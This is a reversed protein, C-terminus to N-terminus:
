IKDRIANLAEAAQNRIEKVGNNIRTDSKHMFYNFLASIPIGVITFLILSDFKFILYLSSLGALAVYHTNWQNHFAGNNYYPFKKFLISFYLFTNMFPICCFLFMFIYLLYIKKTVSENRLHNLYLCDSKKSPIYAVPENDMFYIATNKGVPTQFDQNIFKIRMIEDTDDLTEFTINQIHDTRITNSATATSNYSNVSVSSTGSTHSLSEKEIVKLVKLKFM